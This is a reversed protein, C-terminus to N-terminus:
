VVIIYVKKPNETNVAVKLVQRLDEFSNSGYRRAACSEFEMEDLM